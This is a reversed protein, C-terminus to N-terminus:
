NVKGIAPPQWSGDIISPAGAKPWYMRMTINFAGEPAPLWNADKGDGPAENQIFIDLSGDANRSLPMWSSVAHRDIANKVFFSDPDYMTVSWFAKVPPTLGADFHLVYRNAGNLPEGAADDYATPYISDAPINAGIAILAILARLEYNTGFAGIDMRPIRWGNVSTAMIQGAKRRLMQIAAAVAGELADHMAPDLEGVNWPEGPVIGITALEAVMAADAASPPNSILLRALEAFFQEGTMAQLQEVPPTKMDTSADVIGQPEVYSKGFQSLPTLKFGAQVAHVAPYDAPGNTQTRGLIWAMNTPSALGQLGPPLPARWNPGTIAFASARTGTTRAGPSAFVNTWADMMPLLYYRDETDPVSLVVPEASLDLFASSYLTDVNARVINKFDAPPYIPVHAFQNVPAASYGARAVNTMRKRTLEMMVLPIGYVIARALTDM